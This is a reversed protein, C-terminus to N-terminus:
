HCPHKGYTRVHQAAMVHLRVAVHVTRVRGLRHHWGRVASRRWGVVRVGAEDPVEGQLLVAKGWKRECVCAWVCRVAFSCFHGRTTYTVCFSKDKRDVPGFYAKKMWPKFLVTNDKRHTLTNIIDNKCSKINSPIGHNQHWKYGVWIVNVFIYTFTFFILYFLIFFIEVHM